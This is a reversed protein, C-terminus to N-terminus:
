PKKGHGIFKIIDVPQKMFLAHVGGDADPHASANKGSLGMRAHLRM